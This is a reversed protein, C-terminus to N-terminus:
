SFRVVGVVARGGEKRTHCGAVLCSLAGQSGTIQCTPFRALVLSEWQVTVDIAQQEHELGIRTINKKKINILEEINEECLEIKIIM